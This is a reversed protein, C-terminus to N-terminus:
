DTKFPSRAFAAISHLCQQLQSSGFEQDSFGKCQVAMLIDDTHDGHLCHDIGAKDLASRAPVEVLTPFVNQLVAGCRQAFPFDVLVRLEARLRAGATSTYSKM